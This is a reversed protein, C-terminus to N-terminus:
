SGSRHISKAHCVYYQRTAVIRAAIDANKDLPLATTEDVPVLDQTYLWQLYISFYQPVLKEIEFVTDGASNNDCFTRFVDCSKAMVATSVSFKQQEDQPNYRVLVTTTKQM